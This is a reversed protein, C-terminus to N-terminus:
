TNNMYIKIFTVNPSNTVKATLTVTEGFKPNSPYHNVSFGYGGSGSSSISCVESTCPATAQGFLTDVNDYVIGSAGAAILLVAILVLERIMLTNSKSSKKKM